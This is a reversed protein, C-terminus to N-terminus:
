RRAFIIGTNILPVTKLFEKFLIRGRSDQVFVVDNPIIQPDAAATQRIDKLNVMKVRRQGDIDRIIYIEKRNADDTVGQAMAIAQSLNIIDFLEFVGPKEVAGDVVFKGLMKADVEVVISPNRLYSAGYRTVLLEQLEIASLGAVSQRGILPFNIGGQRDVVFDGSLEEIGFIRVSATDGAKLTDGAAPRVALDAINVQPFDAVINADAAAQKSAKLDASQGFSDGPLSACSVLLVSVSLASVAHKLM